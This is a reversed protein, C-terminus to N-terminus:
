AAWVGGSTALMELLSSGMTLDIRSASTGFSASSNKLVAPEQKGSACMPGKRDAKSQGCITGKRSNSSLPVFLSDIQM